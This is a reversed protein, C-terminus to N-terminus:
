LSLTHSHRHDPSFTFFPFVALFEIIYVKMAKVNWNETQRSGCSSIIFITIFAPLSWMSIDTCSTDTLTIYIYIYIKPTSRNVFDVTRNVDHNQPWPKWYINVKWFIM